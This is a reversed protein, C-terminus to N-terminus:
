YEIKKLKKILKIINKINMKDLHSTPEDFVIIESEKYLSRAIALRQMQGGSIKYGAEDLNNKRRYYLSDLGVSFLCEKIKLNDIKSEDFEYTINKEISANFVNIKQPIYSIKKFWSFNEYINCVKNNVYFTGKEPKLLGCFINLFTTKGTGSKGYVGLIFNKKLLINVNNFLKKQNYSFSINKLHVSNINEHVEINKNNKILQINKKLNKTENNLEHIFHKSYHIQNFSQYL